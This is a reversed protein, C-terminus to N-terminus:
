AYSIRPDLYAYVIDVILNVLTVAAIIMLTAGQILAYDRQEIATLLMRGIGPYNFVSETVVTGGLFTGLQLGLITVFPLLANRLAHRGVVFTEGLGKARATRVYDRGLTESLSQRLFRGLIGSIFIGLTLGPLLLNRMAQWPSEWFPVYDSVAPLVQLQVAFVLILLIGVWFTPVSLSLISQASTLRGLFSKPKLAGFFAIPISLLLAFVFSVFALQFTPMLRRSIAASVEQGTIYSQGFDGRLVNSMWTVYQNVLPQDLGMRQREYEVMEPTANEGALAVAPDGPLAYVILWILLSAVILTPVTQLLRRLVYAIM